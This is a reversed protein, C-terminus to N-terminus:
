AAEGVAIYALGFYLAKFTTHSFYKRISEWPHREAQDLTVGFPKTIWVGVQVLWAPINEPKKLDLIVFRQGPSLARAGHQIVLDYEPVMTLAFTSLIGDVREPFEFGAADCQVLEVNKWGNRQVRQQAAQLMRDTLDVGIIKGEEGIHEQLFRFNLGTGCGIEVVTDGPRLSLAQVAMRRYAQVRFGVLYYLNASLDYHRARKRYLQVIQQKTPAM